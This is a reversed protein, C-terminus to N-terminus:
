FFVKLKFFVKLTEFNTVGAPLNNTKNSCDCLTFTCIQPRGEGVKFTDGSDMDAEAQHDQFLSFLHIISGQNQDTGGPKRSISRNQM